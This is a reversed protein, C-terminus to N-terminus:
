HGHETTKKAAENECFSIMGTEMLAKILDVQKITWHTNNLESCGPNGIIGLKHSIDTISQQFIQIGAEFSIRISNPEIALDTVRGFFAKQGPRSRMFDINESMFLSPMSLIWEVVSDDRLNFFRKKVDPEIATVLARDKAVTFSGGDFKEGGIIFLNYFERDISLGGFSLPAVAADTHKVNKAIMAQTKAFGEEIVDTLYRADSVQLSQQKLKNM